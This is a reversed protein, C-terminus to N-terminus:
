RKITAAWAQLEAPLRADADPYAARLAILERAADENRGESLLARIRTIRQEPSMVQPDAARQKAVAPAAARSAEPRMLAGAASGQEAADRPQQPFNEPPPNTPNAENKRLPAPAPRDARLKARAPAESPVRQREDRDQTMPVAPPAPAAAEPAARTGPSPTDSVVTATSEPEKPMLQLVGITIAGITAAAALPMWWRWPSTAEAAKAADRPGSQVAHHAAALIAADVDPSPTEASDARLLADLTPDFPDREPNM